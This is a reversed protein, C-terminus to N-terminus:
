CWGSLCETTDFRRICLQSNYIWAAYNIWKGSVSDYYRDMECWDGEGAPIIDKRAIVLEPTNMTWNMFAPPHGYEVPDTQRIYRLTQTDAVFNTCTDIVHPGDIKVGSIHAFKDTYGGRDQAYPISASGSSLGEWGGVIVNQWLDPPGSGRYTKRFNGMALHTGPMNASSSPYGLRTAFAGHCGPTDQTPCDYLPGVIYYPSYSDQDFGGYPCLVATKIGYSGSVDGLYYEAWMNVYAPTGVVTARNTGSLSGNLNEGNVFTGNIHKIFIYGEGTGITWNSAPYSLKAYFLRGTAGSTAGTILDGTDGGDPDDYFFTGPGGSNFNIRQVLNDTLLMYFPYSHFDRVNFDAYHSSLNFFSGFPIFNNVIKSKPAYLTVSGLNPHSFLSINLRNNTTSYWGLAFTNNIGYTYYRNQCLYAGNEGLAIDTKSATRVSGWEYLQLGYRFITSPTPSYYTVYYWYNSYDQYIDASLPPYSISPKYNGDSVTHWGNFGRYVGDSFRFGFLAVNNTDRLAFYLRGNDPKLLIDVPGKVGTYTREIDYIDVCTVSKYGISKELKSKVVLVKDGVDYDGGKAGYDDGILVDEGISPTSTKYGFKGEKVTVREGVDVM